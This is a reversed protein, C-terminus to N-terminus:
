VTQKNAEKDNTLEKLANIEEDSLWLEGRWYDCGDSGYGVIEGCGNNFLKIKDGVKYKTIEKEDLPMPIPGAFEIYESVEDYWKKFEEPKSEPYDKDIWAIDNKRTRRWYYGDKTPMEKSFKM